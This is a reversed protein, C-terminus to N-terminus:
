FSIENGFCQFKTIQSWWHPSKSRIHFVTIFFLQNIFKSNQPFIRLAEMKRIRESKRITNKITTSRNDTAYPAAYSQHCLKPSVGTFNRHQWLCSKENGITVIHNSAIERVKNGISWESIWCPVPVLKM